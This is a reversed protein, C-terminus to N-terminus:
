KQHSSAPGAPDDALVVKVNAKHLAKLHKPSVSVDTILGRCDSLKGFRMLAVRGIKSSDCVVYAAKASAVEFTRQQSITLERRM